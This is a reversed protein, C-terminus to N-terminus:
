ADELKLIEEILRPAKMMHHPKKGSLEEYRARLRELEVEYDAPEHIHDPLSGGKRGDGDHDLPDVLEFDPNKLLRAGIPDKPDVELPERGIFLYPGMELTDRGCTYDGIFKLRPM